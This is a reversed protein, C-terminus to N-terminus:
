KMGRYPLQREKEFPGFPKGHKATLTDFDQGPDPAQGKLPETKRPRPKPVYDQDDNM